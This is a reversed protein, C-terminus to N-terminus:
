RAKKKGGRGSDGQKLFELRYGSMEIVGDLDNSRSAHFVAPNLSYRVFRGEKEALLIKAQRLIGYLHELMGHVGGDSAIGMVHLKAGATTKVRAVATKWVPNQALQKESFLKNLRVLEQDVIRGAGINEHGVESNGM